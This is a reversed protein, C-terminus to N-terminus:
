FATQNLLKFTFLQDSNNRHNQGIIVSYNMQGSWDNPDQNKFGSHDLKEM